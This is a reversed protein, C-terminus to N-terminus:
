KLEKGNQDFIKVSIPNRDILIGHDASIELRTHDKDKLDITCIYYVRIEPEFEPKLDVFGVINFIKFGQDEVGIQSIDPFVADKKNILEGLVEKQALSYARDRPSPMLQVLFTAVMLILCVIILPIRRKLMPVILEKLDDPIKVM